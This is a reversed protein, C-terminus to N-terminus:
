TKWKEGEGGARGGNLGFSVFISTEAHGDHKEHEGVRRGKGVEVGTGWLFGFSWVHANTSLKPTEAEEPV